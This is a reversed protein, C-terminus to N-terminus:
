FTRTEDAAGATPSIVVAELDPVTSQGARGDTRGGTHSDVQGDPPSTKPRVVSMGNM